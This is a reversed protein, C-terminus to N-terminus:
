RAAIGFISTAAVRREVKARFAPDNKYKDTKMVEVMEASSEFPAVDSARLLEGSASILNPETGNAKVFQARVGMLALKVLDPNGSDLAADYAAAEVDTLNSKAWELTAALEAKGGAVEELVTTLKDAVAQQGAIFADVAPQDFGKAALASLTQESLEGNTAYEQSLAALDFGAATAAAATVGVAPKAPEAPAGQKAELAAYAAAMAEPTTFKEPLWAPREGGDKVVPLPVLAPDVQVGGNPGDKVHAPAGPTPDVKTDAPIVISSVSM